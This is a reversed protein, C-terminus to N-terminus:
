CCDRRPGATSRLRMCGEGFVDKPRGYSDENESMDRRARPCAGHELLLRVAELHGQQCAVQLPSAGDGIPLDVRAGEGLLFLLEDSDGQQAALYLPTKGSKTRTDYPAGYDLLLYLMAEAAAAERQLTPTM